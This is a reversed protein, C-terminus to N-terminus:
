HLSQDIALCHDMLVKLTQVTTFVPLVTHQLDLTLKNFLDPMLDKHPIQAQGALHLFYTQFASFTKTTKM